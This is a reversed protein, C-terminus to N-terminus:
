NNATSHGLNEQMFEDAQVPWDKCGEAATSSQGVGFGHKAGEVIYLEAPVRDKVSDYTIQANEVPVMDDSDGHTIYFAPLNTNEETVPTSGSGYVIMAVDLDSSVQDIDDAVYGSVGTDAPTLSGYNYNVAQLITGGGGSFGAAAIMDQGGWGEQEAYYRVLRVARQMDMGIDEQSFPAVRRQLLFCNYGMEQFCPVAAYGEAPNSRSTFGGGSVLIINGKAQTPDDLLCKILVPGQGYGDMESEDLTDETLDAEEGDVIPGVNATYWEYGNANDEADFGWLFWAGDEISTHQVLSAQAEVVKQADEYSQSRKFQRSYVSSYEDYSEETFLLEFAQIIRYNRTMLKIYEDESADAPIEWLYNSIDQVVGDIETEDEAAKDDASTQADAPAAAAAEWANESAMADDWMQQADGSVFGTLDYDVTVVGDAVTGELIQDEDFCEFTIYFASFDDNTSVTIEAEGFGYTGDFVKTQTYGTEADAAQEGAEAGDGEWANESAMADDWMQQADGSVFGTLDYDVTVVGDAVTGELIQDEDFCEFTIYFASFDDNTSVTIEAEGFGYAGDFVKTQTYGEPVDSAMTFGAATLTMAATLTLAIIKKM